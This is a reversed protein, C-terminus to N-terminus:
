FNIGLQINLESLELEGFYLPYSISVYIISSPNFEYTLMGNVFVGYFMFDYDEKDSNYLAFMSLGGNVRVGVRGVELFKFGTGVDIYIPSYDDVFDLFAEVTAYASSPIKSVSGDTWVTVALGFLGSFTSVGYGVHFGTTPYETAVDYKEPREGYMFKTIVTGDTKNYGTVKVYGVGGTSTEIEFIVDKQVLKPDVGALVVINGNMSTVYAELKFIERLELWISSATSEIADKIAQQSTKDSSGYSKMTKSALLEGNEIDYLKITYRSTAEYSKSERSWTASLETLTLLIAYKSGGLKGINIADSIGFVSMNREKMIRQLDARPFLRFRGLQLAQEEIISLLYDVYSTNWGGSMSGPLIVLSVKETVTVGGAAFISVVMVTLVALVITKSLMVLGGGEINQISNVL